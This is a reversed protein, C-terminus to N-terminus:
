SASRLLETWVLDTRTPCVNVFKYDPNLATLTKLWNINLNVQPQEHFGNCHVVHAHNEDSITTVSSVNYASCCLM